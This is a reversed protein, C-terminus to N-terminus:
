QPRRWPTGIRPLLWRDVGWYGAAKWALVLLVAILFLVPNTSASGALMFNFNLLAGGLAAFGTLLGIILCIGIALEGFAVLKAFWTYSGTDLLVQIFSRYWDYTIPPKGPAVPLKAANMWFGKLAAGGDIWGTGSVKHWGAVLWEYGLYLRLLTWVWAYQTTNFLKVVLAPDSVPLAYRNTTM